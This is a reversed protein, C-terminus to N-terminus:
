SFPNRRYPLDPRQLVDGARNGFKKVREGGACDIKRPSARLPSDLGGELVLHRPPTAATGARKGVDRPGRGDPERRRDVGLGRSVHIGAVLLSTAEGDVM